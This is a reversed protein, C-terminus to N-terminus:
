IMAAPYSIVPRDEKWTARAPMARVNWVTLSNPLRVTDWRIWGTPMRMYVLIRGGGPKRGKKGAHCKNGECLGLLFEDDRRRIYAIGEGGKNKGALSIEGWHREMLTLREDYVEVMAKYGDPHELEEVLLYFRRAEPDWCIGEYGIGPGPLGVLSAPPTGTGLPLSVRAMQALNDFVVMAAGDKICVGSAELSSPALDGLLDGLKSEAVLELTLRARLWDKNVHAGQIMRSFGYGLDARVVGCGTNPIQRVAVSPVGISRCSERGGDRVLPTGVAWLKSEGNVHTVSVPL